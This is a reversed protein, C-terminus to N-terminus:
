PQPGPPPPEPPTKSTAAFLDKVLGVLFKGAARTDDSSIIHAGIVCAGVGIYWPVIGTARGHWPVIGAIGLAVAVAGGILKNRKARAKEPGMASHDAARQAVIQQTNPGIPIV